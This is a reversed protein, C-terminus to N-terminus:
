KWSPDAAVDDESDDTLDTVSRRRKKSASAAPETISSRRRKSASAGGAGSSKRRGGGGAVSPRKGGVSKRKGSPSPPISVAPRPKNPSDPVLIVGNTGNEVVIEQQSGEGAVMGDEEVAEEYEDGEFKFADDTAVLELFQECQARDDAETLLSKEMSPMREWSLISAAGIQRQVPREQARSGKEPQKGARGSSIRYLTQLHSKLIILAGLCLSAKALHHLSFESVGVEMVIEIDKRVTEGTISFVRHIHYIINLVEEQTKYELLAMNEAVFRALMEDIADEGASLNVDLLKVLNMTFEDRRSKQAQVVFYMKSLLAEARGDETRFHAPVVVVEGDEGGKGEDKRNKGLLGRRYEFMCKVCDVNKAHIFSNYKSNLTKHRAFARERLEPNAQMAIIGAICLVPHLLGQELSLDVLDYATRTLKADTGLMCKLVEDLYQNMISNSVGMDGMEEASGILVKIDVKSQAAASDGEEKTKEREIESAKAHENKLFMTLTVLMQTKLTISSIKFVDAICRRTTDDLMLSPYAIFLDASAQIAIDKLTEAVNPSGVFFMLLKHVADTISSSTVRNLDKQAADSLDRRMGDFDFWRVMKTMIFMSRYLNRLDIQSVQPPTPAMLAKQFRSALDNCGALAGALREYDRTGKLVITCLAPVSAALITLSGKTMGKLLDQQIKRMDDLSYDPAQPIVNRLINIALQSILQDVQVLSKQVARNTTDEAEELALIEEVMSEVMSACISIITEKTGKNTTTAVRSLFGIFADTAMAVAKSLCLARKRVVLRVVTPFSGWVTNLDPIFHENAEGTTTQTLRAAPADRFPSFWLEILCKYALDKVTDEEDSLRSMLRAYADAIRMEDEEQGWKVLNLCIEKLLKVIRKRVNTGPDVVRIGLGGYYELVLDRSGLMHKGVIEIVVDRVSASHDNLRELVMSKFRADKLIAPEAAIIEQMAKLAKTRIAVVDSTLGKRSIIAVFTDFMSFLQQRQSLANVLLAITPRLDAFPNIQAANPPLFFETQLAAEVDKAEEGRIRACLSTLSKAVIDRSSEPFEHFSTPVSSGAWSALYFSKANQLALRDEVGADLWDLVAKQSLWLTKIAEVSTTVEIEQPPLNDKVKAIEAASQADAPPRKRIRGAIIGLWDMAVVRQATDGQKKTEDLVNIMLLSYNRAVIEAAPWEPAGLVTVIDALLNDLVAKYEAETTGTTSRRPRGKETKVGVDSKETSSSKSFLFNLAYTACTSSADFSSKCGQAFKEYAVEEDDREEKVVPEDETQKDKKKSGKKSPTSRMMEHKRREKAKNIEDIDTMFSKAAEYVNSESCCSQILQLLLATTMQISRGDPLRYQKLDKKNGSLKILSTLIEELIFFRHGPHRAFITRSIDIGCFQIRGLGLSTALVSVEVFFPAIAVYSVPIIVDDTVSEKRLVRCLVGMVEAVRGALAAVREKVASQECVNKMTKITPPLQDGDVAGLEAVAHVVDNLVVKLFEVVSIILEEGYLKKTPSKANTRSGHSNAAISVLCGYSAYVACDARTLVEDLTNEFTTSNVDEEKQEGEDDDIDMQSEGQKGKKKRKKPSRSARSGLSLSDADKVRAELMTLLRTFGDEGIDDLIDMLHGPKELKGMYKALERLAELSLLGGVVLPSEQAEAENLAINDEASFIREVLRVANKLYQPWKPARPASGKAASLQSSSLKRKKADHESVASSLSDSKDDPVLMCGGPSHISKQKPLVIEVLGGSRRRKIAFGAPLSQNPTSSGSHSPTVPDQGPTLPLRPEEESHFKVPTTFDRYNAAPAPRISSQSNADDSASKAPTPGQSYETSTTPRSPPTFSHMSQASPMSTRPQSSGAPPTSNGIAAGNMFMEVEVEQFQSTAPTSTTQSQQLVTHSALQPGNRLKQEHDLLFAVPDVSANGNSSVAPAGNQAYSSSPFQNLVMSALPGHTTPQPAQQHSSPPRGYAQSGALISGSFPDNIQLYDVNVSNLAPQVSQFLHQAQAYSQSGVNAPENLLNGLYAFEVSSLNDIINYANSNQYIDYTPLYNAADTVPTFSAMPQMQIANLVAQSAQASNPYHCQPPQSHPGSHGYAPQQYSGPAAAYSQQPPSSQYQSPGMQLGDGYQYPYAPAHGAPTGNAPRGNGDGSPAVGNPYNYYPASM